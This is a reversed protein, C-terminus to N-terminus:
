MIAAASLVSSKYRAKLIRHITAFETWNEESLYQNYYTSQKSGNLTLITSPRKNKDNEQESLNSIDSIKTEMWYKM